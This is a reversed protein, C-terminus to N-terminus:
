SDCEDVEPPDPLDLAAWHTIVADDDGRTLPYPSGNANWRGGLGYDAYWGAYVFRQEPSEVAHWCIWVKQRQEPKEDEAPIWDVKM